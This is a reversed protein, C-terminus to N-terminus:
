VAPITWMAAEKRFSLDLMVLSAPEMPRMSPSASLTPWEAFKIPMLTTGLHASSALRAISSRADLLLLTSRRYRASEMQTLSIGLM